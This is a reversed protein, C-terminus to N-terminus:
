WDVPNTSHSLLYPSTEKALRNKKTHKKKEQEQTAPTQTAPAKAEGEEEAVACASLCCCALLGVVHVLSQIRRSRRSPIRMLM